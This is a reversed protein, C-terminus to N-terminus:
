RRLPRVRRLVVRVAIPAGIPLVLCAVAGLVILATVGFHIGLALPVVGLVVTAMFGVLLM